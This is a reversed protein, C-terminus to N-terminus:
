FLMEKMQNLMSIEKSEKVLQIDDMNLEKIYNYLYKYIKKDMKLFFLVYRNRMESSDIGKMFYTVLKHNEYIMNYLVDHSIKTLPLIHIHKPYKKVFWIYFNRISDAFKDRPLECENLRLLSYLGWFNFEFKEFMICIIKDDKKINNYGTYYELCQIYTDIIDDSNISMKDLDKTVYNCLSQYIDSTVTPIKFIKKDVRSKIKDYFETYM